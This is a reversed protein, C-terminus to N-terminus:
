RRGSGDRDFDITPLLFNDISASMDKLLRLLQAREHANWDRFLDELLKRRTRSFEALMRKGTASPKLLRVRGDAASPSRELLGLEELKALQRSVTSHDRGVVAALEVAGIPGEVGIRALLPFLARDLKLGTQELFRADIDPRNMLGTIKLLIAHLEDTWHTM